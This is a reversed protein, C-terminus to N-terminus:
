QRQTISRQEKPSKYSPQNYINQTTGEPYWNEDEMEKQEQQADQSRWLEANCNPHKPSPFPRIDEPINFQDEIGCADGAGIIM